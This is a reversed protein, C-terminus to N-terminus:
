KAMFSALEGSVLTDTKSSFLKDGNDRYLVVAYIHGALTPRLLQVAVGAQSPVDIRRAGLINGLKGGQYDRVAVWTSGATTVNLVNVTKGAVQNNVSFATAGGTPGLNSSVTVGASDDSPMAEGEVTDVDSGSETSSAVEGETGTKTGKSSTSNGAFVGWGILFGVVLGVVLAVLTGTSWKTTEM